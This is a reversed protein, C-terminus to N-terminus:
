KMSSSLIGVKLNDKTASTIITRNDLIRVCTSVINGYIEKDTRM